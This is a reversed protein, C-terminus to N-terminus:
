HCRRAAQRRGSAAAARALLLLCGLRALRTLHAITRSRIASDSCLIKQQQGRL